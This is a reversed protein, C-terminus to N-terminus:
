LTFREYKSINNSLETCEKEISALEGFLEKIIEFSTREDPGGNSGLMGFGRSTAYGLDVGVIKNSSEEDELQKLTDRLKVVSKNYAVVKEKRLAGRREEAEKIESKIKDIFEMTDM